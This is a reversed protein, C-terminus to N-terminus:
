LISYHWNQFPSATRNVLGGGWWLSFIIGCKIPGFRGKGECCAALLSGQGSDSSDVECGRRKKIIYQLVIRGNLGLDDLLDGGKLNGLWFWTHIKKERMYMCVCAGSM